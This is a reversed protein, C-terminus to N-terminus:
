VKRLLANCFGAAFRQKSNKIIKVAENIAASAPIKDTFLLQYASIRLVSLVFPHIKNFGKDAFKMLAFDLTLKRQLVGYILLSVLASDQKSLEASQIASDLAINSYSQDREIDCLVKVAVWRANM